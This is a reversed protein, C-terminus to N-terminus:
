TTSQNDDETNADEGAGSDPVNPIDQKYYKNYVFYAAAAILVIAIAIYIWKNSNAASQNFGVRQEKAGLKAIPTKLEM